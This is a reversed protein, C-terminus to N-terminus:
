RVTVASYARSKNLSEALSILRRASLTRCISASFGAKEAMSVAGAQRYDSGM